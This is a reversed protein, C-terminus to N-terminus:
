AAEAGGLLLSTTNGGFAHSEVLATRVDECRSGGHVVDLGCAPDVQECNRTAPIRGTAITRLATAVQLIGAAALPHGLAGKVSMVPVRSRRPGLLTALGHAEALDTMQIGTAHACVLGVDDVTRGAEALAQRGAAAFGQGTPDVDGLFTPRARAVGAGLITGLIRAGRARAHEESELVLMAGGEGLVFGARRRDFPRAASAPADNDASLLGCRAFGAFLLPTLPADAGGAVAVDITGSRIARTAHVLADLGAPCETSVTLIPGVIGWDSAALAAAAHPSAVLPFTRGVSGPGRRQFVMSQAEYLEAAGSATGLFLGARTSALAGDPVRADEVALRTAAVALQCYRGGGRARMGTMFDRPRFDPVQAAIQVAYDSVDFSSLPRVTSGGDVLTKWLADIGIGSSAVLGIGTVVVRRSAPRAESRPQEFRIAPITNPHPAVSTGEIFQM